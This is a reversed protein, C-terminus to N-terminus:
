LIKKFKNDCFLALKVRLKMFGVLVLSAFFLFKLNRMIPKHTGKRDFEIHSNDLKQQLEKNNLRSEKLIRWRSYINTEVLTSFVNM